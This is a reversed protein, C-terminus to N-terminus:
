LNEVMFILEIILFVILYVLYSGIFCVYTFDSIYALRCYELIEAIQM